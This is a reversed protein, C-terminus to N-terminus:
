IELKELTSSAEQAKALLKSSGPGPLALESTKTIIWTSAYMNVRDICTGPLRSGVRKASFGLREFGSIYWPRLGASRLLVRGGLKLAYNLARIQTLAETDKPNFWDMSDMVIAITLSGKAIRSIVEQIEDTHIRLGEFAGPRSLKAHAKASLYGPHCRRSYQGTLTLLYYFNDESLLTERAVPDLTNIIYQWMAEGSTDALTIDFPNLNDQDLYDELIMAVQAPPVGAAKWLFKSGIVAWHLPRSMLVRRVRPWIERQENLTKAQCLDRVASRLGSIWVLWRVLRIGHGSGGGEYLGRPSTFIQEHSLWFQCAQSSMYPSLRTILTNRFEPYRGEGFLKWFDVYPLAQYAALKLELLHNQNPNIDVAHIRRPNTSYLYDLLNDGASTICLIVDEPGIKLLRRDVRSDEWTFAYIFENGFQTHKRHSEDYFIRQFTNQYFTSPLPLNASLNVIASQYAKSRNEIVTDAAASMDLRHLRPSLYPSETCAADLREILEGGQTTSSTLKGMFIYYPICIGGVLYNRDDICKLTGFRYELYDRKAGELGVRDLDFWARWFSRGLWNVHRQLSGGIYNRGSTEVASQVYFDIVAIIGNPDLLSTMSDVVSYYDPIMSLSYSMTILNAKNKGPNFLRADQCIVTVNVWGLRAFRKRAVECLSPSLDVLYVTEFFQPVDLFEQMAEINWGTGSGIDIWIPKREVRSPNAFEYKLQAAALGLMDERGRLLRKRTADYVDAQAKYFSELADQQGGLGDGTHPKLFSVFFFKGFNNISELTDNYASSKLLAVALIGTFLVLISVAVALLQLQQLDLGPFPSAM